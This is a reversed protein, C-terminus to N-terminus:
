RKGGHKNERDTVIKIQKDIEAEIRNKTRIVNPVKLILDRTEDPHKTKFDANTWALRIEQRLANKKTRLIAKEWFSSM